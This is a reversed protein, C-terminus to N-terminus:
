CVRLIEPTGELIERGQVEHLITIDDLSCCRWINSNNEYVEQKGAGSM